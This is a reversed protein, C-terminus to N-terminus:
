ERPEVDLRVAIGELEPKPAPYRRLVLPDHGPIVHRPSSALRKVAAFGELM